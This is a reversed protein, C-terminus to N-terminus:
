VFQVRGVRAAVLATVALLFHRRRMRTMDTEMPQVRDMCHVWAVRGICARDSRRLSAYDIQLNRRTIVEYLM